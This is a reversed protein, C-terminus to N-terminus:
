RWLVLEGRKRANAYYFYLSGQFLKKLYKKFYTFKMENMPKPGEKGM